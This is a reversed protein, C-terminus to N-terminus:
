KDGKERALDENLSKRTITSIDKKARETSGGTQSSTQVMREAGQISGKQLINGSFELPSSDKSQIGNNGVFGYNNKELEKEMRNMSDSPNEVGVTGGNLVDEKKDINGVMDNDPEGFAEGQEPSMTSSENDIEENNQGMSSDDVNENNKNQDEPMNSNEEMDEKDPSEESADIDNKTDEKINDTKPNHNDQNLTEERGGSTSGSGSVPETEPPVGNNDNHMNDFSSMGSNMKGSGESFPHLVKKVAGGGMHALQSTMSTAYFLTMAKGLGDNLGADQGTLQQVINPGDIVAFAIFILIFGKAAGDVDWTSIFKCALQYFKISVMTVLLIIYADKISDLIKMIKQSSNINASYLYALLEKIAIEYITRIVKYAMFLFIVIESFLEMYACAWDVTYRYYYENLMDTWAVGDYIDTLEYKSKGEDDYVKMLCQNAIDESDDTVIDETVIETINLTNFDNKKFDEYILKSNKVGNTKKNLNYLGVRNDIYLLDHINSGVTQYVIINNSGGMIETRVEKGLLANMKSILFTSSSIVLVAICMNVLLKPKKEHWLILIIGLCFLALCFLAVWVIQYKNIYNTVSKYTTFDIFDFCKEYVEEAGAAVWVLFKMIGWGIARFVNGAISNQIFLQSNKKLIKIVEGDELALARTSNVLFLPITLLIFKFFKHKKM